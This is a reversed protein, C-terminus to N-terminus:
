AAGRKLRERLEDGPTRSRPLRPRKPDAHVFTDPQDVRGGKLAPGPASGKTGLSAGVIGPGVGPSSARRKAGPMGPQGVQGAIMGGGGEQGLEGGGGTVATAPSKPARFGTQDRVDEADIDINLQRLLLAIQAVQLADEAGVQFKLELSFPLSRVKQGRVEWENREILSPFLEETLTEALGMSDMEIIQPSVSGNQGWAVREMIADFYELLKALHEYQITAPDIKDFGKYDKGAGLPRPFAAIGWETLNKMAKEVAIRSADNGLDFYALLLGNIGFRQLANFLWTLFQTRFSWGWFLLSRLGLGGAAAAMQSEFLYDMDSPNFKHVIFQKRESADDLFYVTGRDAYSIHDLRGRGKPEFTPNVLIGLDRAGYRWIIKDGQIPQWWKVTTRDRGNIKKTGFGIQAASKGHFIAEQLWFKLATWQPIRKLLRMMQRAARVQDPDDPDECEVQHKLCAVPTKRANVKDRIFPDRLMALGSVYSQILAEDFRSYYTHNYLNYIAGYLNQQPIVPNGDGLDWNTNGGLALESKPQSTEFVPGGGFRPTAYGAPNASTDINFSSFDPM